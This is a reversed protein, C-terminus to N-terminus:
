EKELAIRFDSQCLLNEMLIIFVDRDAVWIKKDKVFAKTKQPDEGLLELAETVKSSDKKIEKLLEKGGAVKKLNVIKTVSRAQATFPGYQKLLKTDYVTVVIYSDISSGDRFSRPTIGYDKIVVAKDVSIRAERTLYGLPPASTTYGADRLAVMVEQSDIACRSSTDWGGQDEPYEPIPQLTSLKPLSACSALTILLVLAMCIRFFRSRM